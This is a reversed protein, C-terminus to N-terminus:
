GRLDCGAVCGLCGGVGWGCVQAAAGPLLLAAQQAQWDAAAAHTGACFRRTWCLCAAGAAATAAPPLLLIPSSRRNLFLPPLPASVFCASTSATCVAAATQQFVPKSRFAAHLGCLPPLCCCVCGANLTVGGPQCTGGGWWWVARRHMGAGAGVKVVEKEEAGAADTGDSESPGGGTFFSVDNESLWNRQRSEVSFLTERRLDGGDIRSAPKMDDAAAADVSTAASAQVATSLIASPAPTSTM